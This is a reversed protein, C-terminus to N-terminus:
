GIKLPPPPCPGRPGGGTLVGINLQYIYCYLVTGSLMKAALRALLTYYLLMLDGPADGPKPMCPPCFIYKESNSIKCPSAMRKALPTRPCAGGLIKKLITCNPANQHINPDSKTKLFKM